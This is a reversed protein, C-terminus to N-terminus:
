FIFVFFYYHKSFINLIIIGLVILFIKYIALPSLFLPINQLIYCQAFDFNQAFLSLPMIYFNYVEVKVLELSKATRHM